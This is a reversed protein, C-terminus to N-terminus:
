APVSHGQKLVVEHLSGVILIVVRPHSGSVGSGTSIPPSPNIYWASLADESDGHNSLM